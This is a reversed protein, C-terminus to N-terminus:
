IRAEGIVKLEVTLMQQWVDLDMLQRLDDFSILVVNSDTKIFESCPQNASWPVIPRAKIQKSYYRSSKTPQVLLRLTIVMGQMPTAVWIALVEQDVRKRQWLMSHATRCAFIFLPSHQSFQRYHAPLHTNRHCKLPNLGTRRYGYVGLLTNVDKELSSFHCTLSTVKGAELEFFPVGMFPLHDNLYHGLLASPDISCRCGQCPCPVLRLRAWPSNSPPIVFLPSRRNSPPETISEFRKLQLLQEESSSAVLVPLRCNSFHKSYLLGQMEQLRQKRREQRKRNRSMGDSTLSQTKISGGRSHSSQSSSAASM